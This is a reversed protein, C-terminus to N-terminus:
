GGQGTNVKSQVTSTLFVCDHKALCSKALTDVAGSEFVERENGQLRCSEAHLTLQDTGAAPRITQRAAARRQESERADQASRETALPGRMEDGVGFEVAQDTVQQVGNGIRDHVFRIGVGIMGVRIMGARRRQGEAALQANGIGSMRGGTKAGHGHGLFYFNPRCFEVELGGDAGNGLTGLM